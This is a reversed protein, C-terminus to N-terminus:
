DAWTKSHLETIQEEWDGSINFKHGLYPYTEHREYLRIPKQMLSFAPPKDPKAKYWRNGGSRREYFAAYKTHKIDLGSWRIFEDTRLLMNTIVSEDRSSIEVDDAYGQVPNPSRVGAPACQCLWKMWSNIPLIFNIASWLCGTKIGIKLPIPDTLASGCIVQIYSNNYVDKIIDVHLQPLRIGDLTHFMVDHLLTGFADCFDLFVTFFKTSSHKFDDIGTKLCFVHENMGQRNIYAKQKPSLIGTEVLWPLIRSLMCKM